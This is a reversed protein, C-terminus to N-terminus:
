VLADVSLGRAIKKLCAPSGPDCDNAMSLQALSARADALDYGKTNRVAERMADGFDAALSDAGDSDPTLVAVRVDEAHAIGVFSGCAALALVLRALASFHRPNLM